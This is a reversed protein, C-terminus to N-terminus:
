NCSLYSKQLPNLDLFDEQFRHIGPRMMRPTLSLFKPRFSFNRIRKPNLFLQRALRETIKRNDTILCGLIVRKNTLRYEHLGSYLLFSVWLQNLLFRRYPCLHLLGFFM